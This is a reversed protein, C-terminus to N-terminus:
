KCLATVNEANSFASFVGDIEAQATFTNVEAILLVEFSAKFQSGDAVLLSTQNIFHGNRYLRIMTQHGPCTQTANITCKVQVQEGVVRQFSPVEITPIAPSDPFYFLV